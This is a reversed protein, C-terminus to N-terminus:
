GGPQQVGGFRSTTHGDFSSGWNEIGNFIGKSASGFATNNYVRMPKYGQSGSQNLQVPSNVNWFLNHDIVMRGDYDAYIGVALNNTANAFINHDIRTWVKDNGFTDFGGSDNARIMFNNIVNHHFRGVGPTTEDANQFQRMNSGQQCVNTITNYAIESDTCTFGYRGSNIAGAETVNYNMDLMNNNLVKNNNGLVSVASAASFQFNCNKIVNNEGSVVIGSIASWQMQWNGAQDTFHTVYKVDLGDIVNGSASTLVSGRNASYLDTTISTAFLKFGKITTNKLGNSSSPAFSYPRMKAEVVNTGTGTASPVGGGPLKVYLTTEDKWWEGEALLKKVGDEILTTGGYYFVKEYTPNFVYFEQNIGLGWPADNIGHGGCGNAIVAGALANSVTGTWGQGDLGVGRNNSLNLWFQADKWVAADADSPFLNAKNFSYSGSAFGETVTTAKANEPAYILDYYGNADKSTLKPWRTLNLMKGDVFIQDSQGDTIFSNLTTSYVGNGVSTWTTLVDCGNITVVDSGYPQLTIGERPISVAERYTGQHVEVIDGTNSATVAAQITAYNQGTGVSRTAAQATFIGTLCFLLFHIRNKM